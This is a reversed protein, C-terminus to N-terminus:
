RPKINNDLFLKFIKEGLTSQIKNFRFAIADLTEKSHTILDDYHKYDIPLFMGIKEIYNKLDNKLKSTTDLFLDSITQLKKELNKIQNKLLYGNTTIALDVNSSYSHIMKIFDSLDEFENKQTITNVEWQIKELNATGSKLRNLIAELDNIVRMMNNFEHPLVIRVGGLNDYIKEIGLKPVDNEKLKYSITQEDNNIEEAKVIETKKIEDVPSYAEDQIEKKKEVCSTVAIAFIVILIKKM